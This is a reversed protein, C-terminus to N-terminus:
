SGQELIVTLGSDPHYTWSATLDDWTAEQRGDLARTTEMRSVAADPIDVEALVCTLATMAAGPREDAAVRSIVLSAGDDGLQVDPDDPACARVADHLPSGAAPSAGSGGAPDDWEGRAGIYILTAALVTAVVAAAITLGRHPRRHRTPGPLASGPTPETAPQETTM